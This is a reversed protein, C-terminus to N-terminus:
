ETRRGAVLKSDLVVSGRVLWSGWSKIVYFGNINGGKSALFGQNTTRRSLGCLSCETMLARPVCIVYMIIDGYVSLNYLRAVLEFLIKNFLEGKCYIYEAVM